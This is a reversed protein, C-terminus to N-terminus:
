SDRWLNNAAFTLIEEASDENYGYEDLMTQVMENYKKKQESDRTRSKTVIRAMERINSMMFKEIAEALPKYSKFNITEGHRALKFMYSTVDQRFGDRTSGTIGIQEEIKIMLDEDPDKEEKTVSDKLTRRNTYAEANDLYSNFLSEAQEEYATIFAKAIEKELITMYEDRIMKRLIELYRTRDDEASVDDRVQQALQDMISIPTVMNKDSSAIAEDIAKMIFRTSIGSMGEDRTEDRLDKIDIKKTRGKEIVEEGDYIKAKTILDCKSTEKLRSMVSFLSAIRITHPASHADINAQGLRKEYM